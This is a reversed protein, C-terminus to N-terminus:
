MTLANPESLTYGYEYGLVAEALAAVLHEIRHERLFGHEAVLIAVREGLRVRQRHPLRLEAVKGIARLDHEVLEDGRALAFPQAHAAEDAQQRMAIFPLPRLM